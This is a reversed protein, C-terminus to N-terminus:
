GATSWRYELSAIESKIYELLKLIREKRYWILKDNTAVASEVIRAKHMLLALVPAAKSWKEEQIKKIFEDIAIKYSEPVSEEIRKSDYELKLKQKLTIILRQDYTGIPVCTWLAINKGQIEQNLVSVDNKEVIKKEAVEYTLVEKSDKARKVVYVPDGPKLLPTSIFVNRDTQGGKKVTSSHGFFVGVWNQNFAATGPIHVAGEDFLKQYDEREVTGNKFKDYVSPDTVKEIPITAGATPAVIIEEYDRYKKPLLDLWYDVNYVRPDSKDIPDTFRDPASTDVKTNTDVVKVWSEEIAKKLLVPDPGTVPLEQPPRFINKWPKFYDKQKKNDGHRKILEKVTNKM